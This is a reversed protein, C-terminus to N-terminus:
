HKQRKRPETSQSNGQSARSSSAASSNSRRSERVARSRRDTAPVTLQGPPQAAVATRRSATTSSDPEPPTASQRRLVPPILEPRYAEPRYHYNHAQSYRPHMEAMESLIGAAQPTDGLRTSQMQLDLYTLQMAWFNEFERLDMFENDWLPNDQSPDGQYDPMSADDM